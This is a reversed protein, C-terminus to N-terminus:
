QKQPLAKVTPAPAAALAAPYPISENQGEIIRIVVRRNQILLAENWSGDKTRANVEPHTDAYGIATLQTPQFNKELFLRVVRASRAGSLEWNSPYIGSTIPRSDTHGEIIIKFPTHVQNEYKQIQEMIRTLLHHAPPTLQTSLTEFFLTSQFTIMLSKPDTTVRAKHTLEPDSKLIDGLRELHTPMVVGAAKAPPPATVSPPPPSLTAPKSAEFKGGMQKSMAEKFSDFKKEELTSLSFLMIFFGCLLTMMDAYSILWNSEDGESARPEAEELEHVAVPPMLQLKSDKKASISSGGFPSNESM